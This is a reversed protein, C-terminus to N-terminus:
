WGVSGGAPGLASGALWGRRGFGTCRRRIPEPKGTTVSLQGDRGGDGAATMIAADDTMGPGDRPAHRHRGSKDEGRQQWRLRERGGGGGSGGEPIEPRPYAKRTMAKKNCPLMGWGAGMPRHLGNEAQSKAGGCTFDGTQEEPWVLPQEDFYPGDSM